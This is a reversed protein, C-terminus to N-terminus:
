FEWRPPLSRCKLGSEIICICEAFQLCTQWHMFDSFTQTCMESKAAKFLALARVLMYYLLSLLLLNWRHSASLWLYYYYNGMTCHLQVRIASHILTLTLFHAARLRSKKDAGKKEGLESEVAAKKV